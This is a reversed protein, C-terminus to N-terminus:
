RRRPKATREALEMADNVFFQRRQQHTWTPFMVPVTVDHISSEAFNMMSLFWTRRGPDDPLPVPVTLRVASGGYPTGISRRAHLTVRDERVTVLV